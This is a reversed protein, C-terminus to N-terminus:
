KVPDLVILRVGGPRAAESPRAGAVPAPGPDAGALFLRGTEPDIALTRAGPATAVTEIPM